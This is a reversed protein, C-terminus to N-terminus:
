GFVFDDSTDKDPSTIESHSCIIKQKNTKQKDNIPTEADCIIFDDSNDTKFDSKIDIKIMEGSRKLCNQREGSSSLDRLEEPHVKYYADDYWAERFETLNNLLWQRDRKTKVYCRKVVSWYKVQYKEHDRNKVFEEIKANDDGPLFADSYDHKNGASVCAGKFAWQNAYNKCADEFKQKTTYEFLRYDCFTCYEMSTVELQQQIQIYYEPPIVGDPWRKFPFKIEILEGFNHSGGSYRIMGDPSASLFPCIPNKSTFSPAQIFEINYGPYKLKTELMFIKDGLPEYKKGFDTCINGSFGPSVGAHEMFMKKKTRYKNKSIYTASESAPIKGDRDNLWEKTGQQAKHHSTLKLHAIQHFCQVDRLPSRSEKGQEPEKEPTKPVWDLGPLLYRKKIIKGNIIYPLAFYGPGLNFYLDSIKDFDGNNFKVSGPNFWKGVCKNYRLYRGCSALLIDFEKIFKTDLKGIAKNARKANSIKLSRLIDTLASVSASSLTASPASSSITLLSPSPQPTASSLTASPPSPALSDVPLIEPLPIEKTFVKLDNIITLTEPIVRGLIDTVRKAIIMYAITKEVKADLDFSIGWNKQTITVLKKLFNTGFQIFQINYTLEM